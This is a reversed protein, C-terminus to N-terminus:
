ASQRPNKRRIDAFDALHWYDPNKAPKNRHKGGTAGRLPPSKRKATQPEATLLRNGLPGSEDPHISTGTAKEGEGKENKM